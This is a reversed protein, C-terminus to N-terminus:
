FDGSHLSQGQGTFVSLSIGQGQTGVREDHKIFLYAFHSFSISKVPVFKSPGPLYIQNKGSM